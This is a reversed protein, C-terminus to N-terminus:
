TQKRDCLIEHRLVRSNSILVNPLLHQQGEEAKRRREPFFQAGGIDDLTDKHLNPAASPGHDAKEIHVADVPDDVGNKVSEVEFPSVAGEPNKCM